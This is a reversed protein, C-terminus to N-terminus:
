VSLAAVWTTLTLSSAWGVGVQTEYLAPGKNRPTNAQGWRTDNMGGLTPDRVHEICVMGLGGKM